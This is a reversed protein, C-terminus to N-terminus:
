SRKRQREHVLAAWEKEAVPWRGEGRWGAPPPLTVSLMYSPRLPHPMTIHYAQLAMHHQETGFQTPSDVPASLALWGATATVSSEADDRSSRRLSSSSPRPSFSSPPAPPSRSLTSPITANSSPLSDLAVEDPHPEAASSDLEEWRRRMPQKRLTNASGRRREAREEERQAKRERREEVQWRVAEEEEADRLEEVSAPEAIVGREGMGRVGVGQRREVGYKRFVDDLAAGKEKEGGGEEDRRPGPKVRGGRVRGGQSTRRSTSFSRTLSSPSAPSPIVHFSPGFPKSPLPSRSSSTWRRDVMVAERLRETVVGDVEEEGQGEEQMRGGDREEEEKRREREKEDGVGQHRSREQSTMRRISIVPRVQQQWDEGEVRAAEVLKRVEAKAVSQEGEGGEGEGGRRRWEERVKEHLYWHNYYPDQVVPLGADAWQLRLQHARGTRLEAEWWGVRREGDVEVLRYATVAERAPSFPLASPPSPSSPSSPPPATCYLMTEPVFPHIRRLPLSIRTPLPLSPPPFAPSPLPQPNWKAWEAATSFAATPPPPRRALWSRLEGAPRLGQQTHLTPPPYAPPSSSPSLSPSPSHHLPLPPPIHSLIRYRKVWEKREMEQGMRRAIPLSRAVM